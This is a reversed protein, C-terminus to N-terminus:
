DQRGVPKAEGNGEDDESNRRAGGSERCVRRMSGAGTLQEDEEVMGEIVAGRITAAFCEAAQQPTMDM